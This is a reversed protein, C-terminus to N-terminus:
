FLGRKRAIPINSAKCTASAAFSCHHSTDWITCNICANRHVRTSRACRALQSDAIVSLGTPRLGEIYLLDPQAKNVLHLTICAGVPSPELFM